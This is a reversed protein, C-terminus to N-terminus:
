RGEAADEAEMGALYDELTVSDGPTRLAQRTTAARDPPVIGIVARLREAAANPPVYYGLSEDDTVIPIIGNGGHVRIAEKLLAVLAVGQDEPSLNRVYEAPSLREPATVTAPM